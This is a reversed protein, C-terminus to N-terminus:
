RPEESRGATLEGLSALKEQQILQSQTTKLTELSQNLEYTREDVEKELSTFLYGYRDAVYLTLGLPFLTYLFAIMVTFGRFELQVYGTSFLMYVIVLSMTGLAGLAVYHVGKRKERYARWCIYGVFIISVTFLALGIYNSLESYIFSIIVFLPYGAVLWLVKKLNEMRFMSAIVYPLFLIVFSASYAGIFEWIIYWYRTVDAYVPSYIALVSILLLAFSISLLLNTRDEPFKYYLMLHLLLLVFLVAGSVFLTFAEFTNNKARYENATHTGFGLNFGLNGASNKMFFNYQKAQHYSYRVAITHTENESVQVPPYIQRPASFTHEQDQNISFNGFSHVLHGDLYVEAAGWGFYYMTWNQSYFSSDATFTLRWWGYGNWLSDPMEEIALGGPSMPYWNSDDYDPKAWTLSDGPKFYWTDVNSINIVQQISERVLEVILPPDSKINDAPLIALRVKTGVRGRIMDGVAESTKGNIDIIEGSAGQGVGIIRDGVKLQGNRYAPRNPLIQTIRTYVSDVEFGIGIGGLNGSVVFLSDASAKVTNTTLFLLVSLLMMFNFSSVSTNKM